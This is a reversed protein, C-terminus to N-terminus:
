WIECIDFPWPHDTSSMDIVRYKAYLPNSVCM